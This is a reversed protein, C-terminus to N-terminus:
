SSMRLLSSFLFLPISLNYYVACFSGNVDASLHCLTISPQSSKAEQNQSTLFLFTVCYLRVFEMWFLFLSAYPGMLYIDGDKILVVAVTLFTKEVSYFYVFFNDFLIM